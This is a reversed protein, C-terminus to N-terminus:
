ASEEARINTQNGVQGGFEHREPLLALCLSSPDRVRGADSSALPMPDTSDCPEAVNKGHTMPPVITVFDWPDHAMCRQVVWSGHSIIGNYLGHGM